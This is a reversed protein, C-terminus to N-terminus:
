YFLIGQLSNTNRQRMTVLPSFHSSDYCLVLPSRFSAIKHFRIFVFRHCQQPSIELPLYIGGFNIPSLSEGKANKLVTDSVVIIPRKLVNALAYVHILELSEYTQESNTGNERPTIKSLSLIDSWEKTWESESFILESQLNAKSEHWRWRRYFASKRESITLAEHLLQRLNLQRDHVGWIGLSAAHLLCNGDGTTVLPWLRQNPNQACWWNLHGSAELRRLTSIEIIDRQIFDRFDPNFKDLNPLIFAYAPPRLTRSNL